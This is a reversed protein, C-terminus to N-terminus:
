PLLDDNRLAHYCSWTTGPPQIGNIICNFVRMYPDSEPLNPGMFTGKNPGMFATTPSFEKTSEEIWHIYSSVRTNVGPRHATGCPDSTMWSVIGIQVWETGNWQVVPGGSDGDCVGIIGQPYGAALEDSAIISNLWHSKNVRANSLLPVIGENLSFRFSEITQDNSTKGYGLLVTSQYAGNVMEQDVAIDGNLSITKTMDTDPIPYMLHLLAIDNILSDIRRCYNIGDNREKTIEKCNLDTVAKYQPHLLIKDVILSYGTQNAGWNWGKMRIDFTGSSYPTGRENTVCHGATLVWNPAIFSGTCGVVYGNDPNTTTILAVFPWRKPDTVPTGGVVQSPIKPMAAKSQYTTKTSLLRNSFFITVFLVVVFFISLFLIKKDICIKKSKKSSSFSM